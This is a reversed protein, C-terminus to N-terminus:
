IRSRPIPVLLWTNVETTNYLIKKICSLFIIDRVYHFLARQALTGTTAILGHTWPPLLLMNGNCM